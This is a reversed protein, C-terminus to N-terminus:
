NIDNDLVTILQKHLHSFINNLKYVIDENVEITKDNFTSGREGMFDVCYLLSYFHFVKYELENINLEYLLYKVYDTDYGMDLLAVNTLSVFTLPDGCELWDIDVVGSVHGEHIMLNKTSIDDLYVVPSLSLFYPEFLPTLKEIEDVKATDFYGNAKIRHRSRELLHNVWDLMSCQGFPSINSVKNQIAIVEKAITRKEEDTLKDYVLGIDKGEIFSCIMYNYNNYQGSYITKPVNVGVSTILNLLRISEEYSNQSLRIVFRDKDSIILFVYNGQGVTLRQINTITIKHKDCIEKIIDTMTTKQDTM